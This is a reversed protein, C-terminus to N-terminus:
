LSCIFEWFTAHNKRIWDLSSDVEKELKNRYDAQRYFDDRIQWMSLAKDGCNEHQKENWYEIVYNPILARKM